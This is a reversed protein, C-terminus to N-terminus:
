ALVLGSKAVTDFEVLSVQPDASIISTLGEEHLPLANYVNLKFAYEMYLM